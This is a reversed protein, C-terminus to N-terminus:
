RHSLIWLTAAKFDILFAKNFVTFLFVTWKLHIYSYLFLLYKLHFTLRVLFNSPINRGAIQNQFHKQVRKNTQKFEEQEEEKQHQFFISQWTRRGSSHGLWTSPKVFTQVFYISHVVVSKCANKAWRWKDRSKSQFTGFFNDGASCWRINKTRVLFNAFEFRAVFNQTSKALQRQIWFMFRDFRANGAASNPELWVM